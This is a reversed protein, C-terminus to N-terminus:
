LNQLKAPKRGVFSQKVGPCHVSINAHKYDTREIRLARPRFTVPIIRRRHFQLSRVIGCFVHHPVRAKGPHVVTAILIEFTGGAVIELDDMSAKFVVFNDGTELEDPLRALLRRFARKLEFLNVTFQVEM